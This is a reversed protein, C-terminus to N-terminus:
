NSTEYKVTMTVTVDALSAGITVLSAKFRDGAVLSGVNQNPASGKTVSYNSAALTLVASYIDVWTSQTASCAVSSVVCRQVNFTSSSASITGVTARMDSLAINTVGEPITLIMNQVGTAPTGPFYWTLNHISRHTHDSRAATTDDGANYAAIGNTGVAVLAPKATFADYDTKSLLGATVSATAALPINLTHADTVSSWNPANGSTGPTAFSQTAATLTNLTTIGSGGGSTGCSFAQSSQTYNLHKGSTDQCDPIAGSSQFITGNGLLVAHNLAAGNVQYGGVANVLGGIRAPATGDTWIVYNNSGNAQSQVYLGYATGITGTGKTPSQAQLAIAASVTGAGVAALGSVGIANTLTGGAADHYGYGRVAIATTRTGSTHVSVADGYLTLLNGTATNGYEAQLPSAVYVMGTAPTINIGGADFQITSSSAADDNFSWTFSSGSGFTTTGVATSLWHASINTPNSADKQWKVNVGNAPAAPTSDDLDATSNVSAGNVTVTTGGGGGGGDGVLNWGTGSSNCLYVQQGAPTADTDVYIEKNATCTGPLSAAAPLALKNASLDQLGGGSYTNAQNNKVVNTGDSLNSTSPQSCTLNGSAAIATAYQNSGCDSPDNTLADAKAAGASNVWNTGNWKPIDNATLSTFTAGMITTGTGSKDAFDSLDASSWVEQGQAANLKTGATLGAYGSAANKNAQYEMTANQNPFTFTKATSAPGSVTFYANGTGGNGAALVGSVASSQDLAVSSWAPENAGGTLVQYQTGKALRTWKPTAGQGTMLDGRVVTAATTDTHTASLIEHSSGGGTQDTSCVPVGDTGVASLKDTGGCTLSKVGGLTTAGPTPLQAAALKTSADLGAYGSAANRNGTIECTPCSIANVARALPSNFTLANEKNNFTTWDASTLYGNQSGTAAPLSLTLDSALAGGGSLPSTTNIARTTPVKGALLTDASSKLYVVPDSATVDTKVTGSVTASAKPVSGGGGSVTCDTRLQGANDVCSVGSGTFNLKQRQPLDDGDQQLFQYFLAPATSSPPQAQRCVEAAVTAVDPVVWIEAHVRGQINFTVVYYSDGPTAGLNPILDLWLHSAGDNLQGSANLYGKVVSPGYEVDGYTVRKNRQAFVLGYQPTGNVTAMVRPNAGLDYTATVQTAALATSLSCHVTFLLLGAQLLRKAIWQGSNVTWKRPM